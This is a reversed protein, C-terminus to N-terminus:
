GNAKEVLAMAEGRLHGWSTVLAQTLSVGAVETELPDDNVPGFLSGEELAAVALVMNQLFTADMAHGTAQGVGRVPAGTKESIGALFAKEEGTVPGYGSAGSLVGLEGQRLDSALAAFQKEAVATAAGPSRKSRHSQVDKLQAIVKAGRAEARERPEMVLFAGASGPVMGADPRSWLNAPAGSLLINGSHYTFIMDPRSANYAAGVLFIDAQGSRIRNWAVRVADVGAPEEGMFTRSSGSAKYILSINGAFLNPLQALFLTPRLGDALERNIFAEPDNHGPLEELIKHDLEWDREGGGAAVVLNIEPLLEENDKLRAMDLALGAAYVGYQMMPEMARQDGRRPVQSALDYDGIPVAHYPAYSESDWLAQAGARDNLLRWWDSPTEGLPSLLGYGTICVERNM